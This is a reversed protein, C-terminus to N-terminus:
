RRIWWPLQHSTLLPYNSCIAPLLSFPTNYLFLPSMLPGFLLIGDQHPHSTHSPLISVDDLVWACTTTPTSSGVVPKGVQIPPLAMKMLCPCQFQVLKMIFIVLDIMLTNVEPLKSFVLGFCSVPQEVNAPKPPEFSHDPGCISRHTEPSPSLHVDQCVVTWAATFLRDSSLM